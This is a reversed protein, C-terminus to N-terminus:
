LNDCFNEQIKKLNPELKEVTLKDNLNNVIFRNSGITILLRGRPLKLSRKSKVLGLVDIKEIIIDM